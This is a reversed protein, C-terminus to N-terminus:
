KKVNYFDAANEGFVKNKSDGSFSSLHKEVLNLAAKYNGSVNCVPWNSGFMLREVGFADIMSDLLPKIHEIKPESSGFLSSIGSLKAYVNQNAALAEIKKMWEKSPAGSSIEPKGLHDLAFPQDPFREVLDIASNLQYDFVLLDFTFNFRELKAIENQFSPDKLFEGKEDYITHRFGKLYVNKSLEYLNEEVDPANLDTWGVVGKIFSHKEALKLLFDTEQENQVAQIVISGDFHNEELIPALDEPLFDKQLVAMSDDIWSYIAPDYKWFHQHSDIKM